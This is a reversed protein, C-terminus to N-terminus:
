YQLFDGFGGKYQSGERKYRGVYLQYKLPEVERLSEEQFFDGEQIVQRLRSVRRNKQERTCEAYSKM